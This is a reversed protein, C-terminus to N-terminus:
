LFVRPVSLRVLWFATEPLNSFDMQSTAVNGLHNQRSHQHSRCEPAHEGFAKFSAVYWGCVYLEVWQDSNRTLHKRCMRMWVSSDEKVNWLKTRAGRRIPLYLLIEGLHRIGIRTTIERRTVNMGMDRETRNSDLERTADLNRDAIYLGNREREFLHTSSEHMGYETDSASQADHSHRRVTETTVSFSAKMYKPSSAANGAHCRWIGSSVKNLTLPTDECAYQLVMTCFTTPDNGCAHQNTWEVRLKSGEYYIMPDPKNKLERDGRWPYGGKDNNQSDFLRNANNNIRM